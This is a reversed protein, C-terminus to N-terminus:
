ITGGAEFIRNRHASPSLGTWVRYARSFSSAESFGLLFSIETLTLSQDMIYKEALERRTTALLNKFSTGKDHLKRTLTRPTMLLKEATLELTATGSPLEELIAARTRGAIDNRDRRALYDLMMQDFQQVFQPNFGTLPEHAVESAIVIQTEEQDFLLECRFFEYYDHPNPPQSHNFLVRLPIFDDGYSMRCLQVPGVLRVRERLAVDHFRRATSQFHVRLEDGAEELHVLTKTTVQRYYRQAREFAKFLSASTLWAYGLAGLYSPHMKRVLHFIFADDHSKQKAAWVLDDFQKETIRANIDLRLAPDIGAEELLAEADMGFDTASKWIFGLIPAFLSM